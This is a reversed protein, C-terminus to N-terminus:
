QVLVRRLAGSTNSSGCPDGVKVYFSYLGPVAPMVFPITLQSVLPAQQYILHTEMTSAFAALSIDVTQGSAIGVALGEALLKPTLELTGDGDADLTVTDVTVTALKLTKNGPPYVHVKFGKRLPDVPVAKFQLAPM